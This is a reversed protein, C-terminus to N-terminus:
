RGTPNEDTAVRPHQKVCTIIDGLRTLQVVACQHSCVDLILELVDDEARYRTSYMTSFVSTFERSQVEAKLTLHDIPQSLDGQEARYVLLLSVHDREYYRHIEGNGSTEWVKRFYQRLIPDGDGVSMINAILM